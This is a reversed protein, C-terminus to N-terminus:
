KVCLQEEVLFIEFWDKGMRPFSLTRVTDFAHQYCRHTSWPTSTTPMAWHSGSPIM